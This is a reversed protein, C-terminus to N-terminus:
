VKKWLEKGEMRSLLKEILFALLAVPVAGKLIMIIDNTRIGIVIPMGLTNAGVISGMTAGAVNIILATKIGSLIMKRALPMEVYLAAQFKSMGCAYASFVISPSQDRLGSLTNMFIPLFSYLTLAIFVPMFGYGITPVLLAIVAISPFTTGLNFLSLCMKEITEMPYLHFIIALSFALTTALAGSSIVLSLHSFFLSKLSIWQVSRSDIELVQGLKSFIEEEFSILMVLSILLILETIWLKKYM